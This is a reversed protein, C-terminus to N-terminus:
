PKQQPTSSTTPEPAIRKNYRSRFVQPLVEMERRAAEARVKAETERRTKDQEARRDTCGAVAVGLVIMLLM